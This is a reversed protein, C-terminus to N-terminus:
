DEIIKLEVKVLEVEEPLPYANPYYLEELEKISKIQPKILTPMFSIFWEGTYDDVWRHQYFHTTGKRRLVLFNRKTAM